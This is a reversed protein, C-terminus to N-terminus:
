KAVVLFVGFEPLTSVPTTTTDSIRPAVGNSRTPLLITPHSSNYNGTTVRFTPNQLDYIAYTQGNVLGATSLNVSVTPALDWNWVSITARGMSYTNPRVSVDIGTPRTAISQNAGDSYTSHADCGLAQWELFNYNTHTAGNQSYIGFYRNVPNTSGSFGGTRGRYYTNHDIQYHSLAQGTFQNFKLVIGQQTPQQVIKSNTLVIDRWIQLSIPSASYAYLSDAVLDYNDEDGYGFQFSGNYAGANKVLFNHKPGSGVIGFTGNIAVGGDIILNYSDNAYQSNYYQLAYFYPNISVFDKITTTWASNGNHTYLGHGHTRDTGTWGNNMSLLGYIEPDQVDFAALGNSNNDHTFCNIVKNNGGAIKIGETVAIDTPSSLGTSSTRQSSSQFVEIDQFTTYSGAITIVATGSGTGTALGAGDLKVTLPWQGLTAPRVTIRNNSSGNLYSFFLGKYTGDALIVSGGPKVPRNGGLALALTTPSAQTGAGYTTGSTSVYTNNGAGWATPQLVRVVAHSSNSSVSIQPLLPYSAAVPNHDSTYLLTVMGGRERYYKVTGEDSYVQLWDNAQVCASCSYPNFERPGYSEQNWIQLGGSGTLAIGYTPGTLSAASPVTIQNPMLNWTGSNTLGFRLVDSASNVQLAIAGTGYTVTENAQAYAASYGSGLATRMIVGGSCIVGANQTCTMSSWSYGTAMPDTPTLSPPLTPTPTPIPTPTPTPTPAATAVFDIGTKDGDLMPIQATPNAILFGAIAASLIISRGATMQTFSYNGNINTFASTTAVGDNCTIIANSLGVSGNSTVRGSISYLRPQGFFMPSEDANLNTFTAPSFAFLPTPIPAVTVSTGPALGNFSFTGSGSTVVTNLTAGASDALNVTVGGLANGGGDVVQGNITYGPAPDDPPGGGIHGIGVRARNSIMGHLTLRILVDGVDQLADNLRVIVCTVEPCEPVKGVYEVTLPYTQLSADEADVVVASLTEGPLLDLNLAFLAIRNRIDSGLFFSSNPSFPESRWTVSELALARTSGPQTILQPSSGTPAFSRPISSRRVSAAHPSGASGHPAGFALAFTVVALCVILHFARAWISCVPQSNSSSRM